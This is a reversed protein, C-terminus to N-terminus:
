KLAKELVDFINVLLINSDTPYYGCVGHLIEERMYGQSFSGLRICTEREPSTILFVDTGSNSNRVIDGPKFAM